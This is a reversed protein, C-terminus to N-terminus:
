MVVSKHIGKTDRALKFSNLIEFISITNFSDFTHSNSQATM